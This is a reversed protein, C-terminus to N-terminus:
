CNHKSVCVSLVHVQRSSHISKRLIIQSNHGLVLLLQVQTLIRSSNHVTILLQTNFKSHLLSGNHFLVQSNTVIHLIYPIFSSNSEPYRLKMQQFLSFLLTPIDDPCFPSYPIHWLKCYSMVGLSSHIFHSSPVPPQSGALLM